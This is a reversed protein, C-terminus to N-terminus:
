SRDIGLSRPSVSQSLQSAHDQISLLGCLVVCSIQGIGSSLGAARDVRNRSSAQFHACDPELQSLMARSCLPLSVLLSRYRLSLVSLDGMAARDVVMM